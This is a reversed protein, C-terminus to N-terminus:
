FPQLYTLDIPDKYSWMISAEYEEEDGEPEKAKDADNSEWGEPNAKWSVETDDDLKSDLVVPRGWLYAIHEITRNAYVEDLPIGDYKHNLALWGRGEYNGDIVEIKPLSTQAFAYIIKERIEKATDKTIVYDITKGADVGEYIYIKIDRILEPTLFDNMFFWDM